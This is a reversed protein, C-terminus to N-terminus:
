KRMEGINVECLIGVNYNEVNYDRRRLQTGKLAFHQRDDTLVKKSSLVLSICVNFM